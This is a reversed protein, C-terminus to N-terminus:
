NQNFSAPEPTDAKSTEDPEIACECSTCCDLDTNVFRTKLYSMLNEDINPKGLRHAIEAATVGFRARFKYIFCFLANRHVLSPGSHFGNALIPRTSAALPINDQDRLTSFGEGAEISHADVLFVPVGLVTSLQLLDPRKHPAVKDRFIRALFGAKGASEAGCVVCTPAATAPRKKSGKRGKSSPAPPEMSSCTALTM